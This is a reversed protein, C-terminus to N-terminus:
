IMNFLPIFSIFYKQSHEWSQSFLEWCIDERCVQQFTETLNLHEISLGCVRMGRGRCLAPLFWTDKIIGTGPFSPHLWPLHALQGQSLSSFNNFYIFKSFCRVFACISEQWGRMSGPHPLHCISYNSCVVCLRVCAYHWPLHLTDISRDCWLWIKLDCLSPTWLWFIEGCCWSIHMQVVWGGM